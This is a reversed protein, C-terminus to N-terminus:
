AFTPASPRTTPDRTAGHSAVRAAGSGRAPRREPGQPNSRWAAIVEQGTLFVLGKEAAYAEAENRPLARGDDGLMECITTTPVLGSLRALELSLETHGRREALGTPAGNLLQVHGPSRFERGFAARDARTAPDSVFTALETITTARDADTIGTFTSRHNVTLGFAPKAGDYAIDHPLLGALAPRAAAGDQILDTLWPLGLAGHHEPALTTCVLGGGDRRLTRVVDPRVHQSAVVLDTEEERGDADYLLVVRGAQLAALAAPLRDPM